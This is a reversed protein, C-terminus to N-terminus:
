AAAQKEAIIRGVASAIRAVTDAPPERDGTEIRSLYAISFGTAEAVERLKIRGRTRHERLFVGVPVQALLKPHEPYDM